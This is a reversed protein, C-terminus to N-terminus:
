QEDFNHSVYEEPLAGKALAMLCRRPLLDCILASFPFLGSWSSCVSVYMRLYVFTCLLVLCLLLFPSRVRIHQNTRTIRINRGSKSLSKTSFSDHLFHIITHQTHQIHMPTQTKHTRSMYMCRHLCVGSYVCTCISMCISMYTSTQFMMTHLWFTGSGFLCSCVGVNHFLPRTAQRIGPFM